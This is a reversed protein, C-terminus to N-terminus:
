TAGQKTVGEAQAVLAAAPCGGGVAYAYGLRSLRLMDSVRRTATSGDADIFSFQTNLHGPDTPLRAPENVKLWCEYLRDINTHHAYFVPDLAAPM